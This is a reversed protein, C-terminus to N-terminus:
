NRPVRPSGSLGGTKPARVVPPEEELTIGGAGVPFDQGDVNSQRTVTPTQQAAARQRELGSYLETLIQLRTPPATGRGTPALQMRRQVYANIAAKDTTPSITVIRNMLDPHQMEILLGKSQQGAPYGSAVRAAIERREEGQAASLQRPKGNADLGVQYKERIADDVLEDTFEQARLRTNLVGSSPGDSDEDDDDSELVKSLDDLSFQFREPEGKDDLGDPDIYISGDKNYATIMRNEDVEFRDFQPNGLAKSNRMLNFAQDYGGPTGAMAGATVITEAVTKIRDINVEDSLERNQSKATDIQQGILEDQQKLRDFTIKARETDLMEERREIMAQREATAKRRENGSKVQATVDETQQRSASTKDAKLQERKTANELDVNSLNGGAIERDYKATDIAKARDDDFTATDIADIRQDGKLQLRDRDIGILDSTNDNLIGQLRHPAENQTIDNDLKRGRLNEADIAAQRQAKQLAKQRDYGADFSALGEQAITGLNIGFAPM